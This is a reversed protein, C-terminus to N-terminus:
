IAVVEISELSGDIEQDVFMLAQGRLALSKELLQDLPFSRMAASSAFRSFSRIRRTVATSPM